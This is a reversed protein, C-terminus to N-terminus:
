KEIVKQGIKIKRSDADVNIQDAFAQLEENFGNDEETAANLAEAGGGKEFFKPCLRNTKM